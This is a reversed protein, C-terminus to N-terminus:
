LCTQKTWKRLTESSTNSTVRPRESKLSREVCTAVTPISIGREIRRRIRIRPSCEVHQRTATATASCNAHSLRPRRHQQCTANSHGIVPFHTAHRSLQLQSARPFMNKQSTHHPRTPDCAAERRIRNNRPSSRITNHSQCNAVTPSKSLLKVTRLLHSEGIQVSM